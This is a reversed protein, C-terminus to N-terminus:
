AGHSSVWANDITDSFTMAGATQFPFVPQKTGHIKPHLSTGHRQSSPNGHRDAVISIQRAIEAEGNSAFSGISGFCHCLM